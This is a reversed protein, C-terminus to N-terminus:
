QLRLLYTLVYFKYCAMHPHAFLSGLYSPLGSQRINYALTARYCTKSAAAIHYDFTLHSDLIIGLRKISSSLAPSTSTETDKTSRAETCRFHVVESKSPNLALGSHLLWNYLAEM